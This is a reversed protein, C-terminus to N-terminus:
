SDRCVSVYVHVIGQGPVIVAFRNSCEQMCKWDWLEKIVTRAGM